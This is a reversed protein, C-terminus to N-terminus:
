IWRAKKASVFSSSLVVPSTLAVRKPPPPAYVDGVLDDRLGDELLRHCDEGLSGSHGEDPEAPALAELAESLSSKRFWVLAGPSPVAPLSGGGGGVTHLVSLSIPASAYDADHHQASTDREGSGEERVDRLSALARIAEANVEDEDDDDDYRASAVPTSCLPCAHRPCHNFCSYTTLTHIQERLQTVICGCVCTIIIKDIVNCRQPTGLLSFWPWVAVVVDATRRRCVSEVGTFVCARVAVTWPSVSSCVRV